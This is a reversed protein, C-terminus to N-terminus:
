GRFPRGLFERGGGSVGISLMSNSTIWYNFVSHGCPKKVLDEKSLNDDLFAEFELIELCIQVFNRDCDGIFIKMDFNM